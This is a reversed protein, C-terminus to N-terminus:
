RQDKLRDELQGLTEPNLHQLAVWGLYYNRAVDAIAPNPHKYGIIELGHMLHLAYHTTCYELEQDVDDLSPLPDQKMYKHDPDANNQTIGRLWKTLAKIHPCYHSDPGRLASLIVSQQKWPLAAMWELQVKGDGM